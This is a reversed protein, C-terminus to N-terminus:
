KLTQERAQLRLESHAVYPVPLKFRGVYKHTKNHAATKKAVLEVCLKSAPQCM